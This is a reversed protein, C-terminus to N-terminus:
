DLSDNIKRQSAGSAHLELDVISEVSRWATFAGVGAGQRSLGARRGERDYLFFVRRGERVSRVVQRFAGSHVGWSDDAGQRSLGARRSERNDRQRTYGHLISM